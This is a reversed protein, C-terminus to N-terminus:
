GYPSYRHKIKVMLVLIRNQCAQLLPSLKLLDAFICKSSLSLVNESVLRDWASRSVEVRTKDRAYWAFRLYRFLQILSHANIWWGTHHRSWETARYFTDISGFLYFYYWLCRVARLESLLSGMWAGTRASTKQQHIEPQPLGCCLGAQDKDIKPHKVKFLRLRIAGWCINMKYAIALTFAASCPYWFQLHFSRWKIILNM